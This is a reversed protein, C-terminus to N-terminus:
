DFHIKAKKDADNESTTYLSMYRAMTMGISQKFTDNKLLNTRILKTQDLLQDITYQGSTAAVFAVNSPVYALLTSAQSVSAKATATQAADTTAPPAKKCASFCLCFYCLLLCLLRTKNM